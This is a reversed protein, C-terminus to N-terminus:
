HTVCGIKVWHGMVQHFRKVTDLVMEEPLAIKQNDQTPDKKYCIIENVDDDLKLKIYNDPYKNHLALLKKDQQQLEWIHVYNSLNHDPHPIEPLNLYCEIMEMLDNDHFGSYDQTLFYINDENNSVM